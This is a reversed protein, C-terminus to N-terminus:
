NQDNICLIEPDQFNFGLVGSMGMKISYVDPIVNVINNDSLLDTGMLLNEKPTAIIMNSGRQWTTPVLQAKKNTNALFMNGSADTETYKATTSLFDDQLFEMITNGLYIQAGRAKVADPLARFVSTVQKYPNSSGTVAGTSVVNAAPIVSTDRATKIRTGLGITVALANSDVWKAPTTAPSEGASTSAVATFYQTKQGVTFKIKAGVSYATGANFAAFAASGVGFFATKDNIDAALSQLVKDYTYQQFPIVNNLTNEGSPRFDSLYTTRYKRPDIILDRQWQDVDLYQPQYGIDDGKPQFTGSYPEFGNRILLKTLVMRNKVNPVLTIDNAIDLMNYFKSFLQNRVKGFFNAILTTDPSITDFAVGTPRQVSGLIVLAAFMGFVPVGTYHAGILSMLAIIMLSVILGLVSQSKKM